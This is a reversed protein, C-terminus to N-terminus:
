DHYYYEKLQGDSWTMFETISPPYQKGLSISNLYNSFRGLGIETLVSRRPDTCVLERGPLPEVLYIPETISLRKAVLLFDCDEKVAIKEVKRKLFAERASAIIPSVGTKFRYSKFRTFPIEIKTELDFEVISM